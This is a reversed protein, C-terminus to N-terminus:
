VFAPNTTPVCTISGSGTESLSLNETMVYRQQTRESRASWRQLWPTDGRAIENALVM